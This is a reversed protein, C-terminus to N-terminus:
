DFSWNFNNVYEVLEKSLEKIDEETLDYYLQLFSDSGFFQLPELLANFHRKFEPDNLYEYVYKSKFDSLICVFVATILILEKHYAELEFKQDITNM